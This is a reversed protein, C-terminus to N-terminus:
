TADTARLCTQPSTSTSPPGPSFSRAVSAVHIAVTAGLSHGILIVPRGGLRSKMVELVDQAHADPEYNGQSDHPSDGHGRLDVAAVSWHSALTPAIRNWVFAGDALGHLLLVTPTGDGWTQMSLRLPM